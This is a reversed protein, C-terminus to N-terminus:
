KKRSPPRLLARYGGRMLAFGSRVSRITRSRLDHTRWDRKPIRHQGFLGEAIERYTKGALRGDLARISLILGQRRRVNLPLPPPGPTRRELARWFRSAAQVRIDFHADLPLEVALPTASTPLEQLWLRHNTGGLPVIAHWGDSCRRLEGGSLTTFELTHSKSV